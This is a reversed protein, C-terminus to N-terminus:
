HRCMRPHDGERERQAIPRCHPDKLQIKYHIANKMSGSTKRPLEKAFVSQYRQLIPALRGAYANSTRISHLETTIDDQTRLRYLPRGNWLIPNDFAITVKARQLWPLGLIIRHSLKDMVVFTCPAFSGNVRVSKAVVVGTQSVWRDDALRVKLPEALEQINMRQSQAWNLRIFNSSAGPDVLVDKCSMGEVLARMIMLESSDHHVSHLSARISQMVVKEKAKRRRRRRTRSEPRGGGGRKPVGVSAATVSVEAKGREEERGGEEAKKEDDAAIPQYPNPSPLPTHHHNRRSQKM